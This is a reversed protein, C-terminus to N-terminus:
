SNLKKMLDAVNKTKTVKGARVDMIAKKTTENPESHFTLFSDNKFNRLFEVLKKGKATKENITITTM